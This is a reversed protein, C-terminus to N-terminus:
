QEAVAYEEEFVVKKVEVVFGLLLELAKLKQQLFAGDKRVSAPVFFRATSGDLKASVGTGAFLNQAVSDVKSVADSYIKNIKFSYEVTKGALPHNFDVKVRGGDASVIRAPMNDIDLSMGPVPTIGQEQFKSLSILRVLEQNRQGFAKEPSLTITKLVSAESKLVEEDLGPVLMKKGAVVLVPKFVRKEDFFGAKKADEAVTTEFVQGDAKGTFDVEAFDGDKM